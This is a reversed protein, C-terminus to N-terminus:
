QQDIATLHSGEIPQDCGAYRPAYQDLYCYQHYPRGEHPIFSAGQLNQNCIECVFHEPHWVKCMAQTYGRQIGKGCSGCQFVQKPVKDEPETAGATAMSLLVCSVVVVSYARNLVVLVASGTLSINRAISTWLTLLSITM